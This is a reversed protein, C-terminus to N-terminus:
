TDVRIRYLLAGSACGCNRQVASPTVPAGHAWSGHGANHAASTTIEEAPCLETASMAAAPRGAITMASARGNASCCAVAHARSRPLSATVRCPQGFRFSQGDSISRARPHSGSLHCSQAVRPAAARAAAAISRTADVQAVVLADHFGRNHRRHVSSRCVQTLLQLAQGLDGVLHVAVHHHRDVVVVDGPRYPRGAYPGLDDGEAGRRAPQRNAGRAVETSLSCDIPAGLKQDEEVNVANRCRVHDVGVPTRGLVGIM